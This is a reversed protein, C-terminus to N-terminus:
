VLLFILILVNILITLKINNKKYSYLLNSIFLLPASVLAFIVSKISLVTLIVSSILVALFWPKKIIESFIKTAEFVILNLIGFKVATLIIIYPDNFFSVGRHSSLWGICYAGVILGMNILIQKQDVTKIKIKKEFQKVFTAKTSNKSNLNLYYIGIPTLCALPIPIVSSIYFDSIFLGFISSTWFLILMENILNIGVQSHFSFGIIIIEMMIISFINSITLAKIKNHQLVIKDNATKIKDCYQKLFYLQTSYSINHPIQLLTTNSGAIVSATSKSGNSILSIEGFVQNEHLTELRVRKKTSSNNIYINTYGFLILYMFKNVKGEQIIVDGSNYQQVVSKEFIENKEFDSLGKFFLELKEKHTNLIKLKHM